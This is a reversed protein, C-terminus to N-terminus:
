KRLNWMYTIVYLIQRERDSKSWQNTKRQNVGSHMIVELDMWTTAFAFNCEKQQTTNWQTHTHTHTHTIWRLLEIRMLSGMILYDSLWNGHTSSWKGLKTSNKLSFSISLHFKTSCHPLRWSNLVKTAWM